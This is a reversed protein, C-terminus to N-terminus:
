PLGAWVCLLIVLFQSLCRSINFSLTFCVSTWVYFFRLKIHHSTFYEWLCTSARSLPLTQFAQSSSFDEPILTQLSVHHLYHLLLPPLPGSSVQWLPWPTQFHLLSQLMEPWSSSCCYGTISYYGWSYGLVWHLRARPTACASSALARELPEPIKREM